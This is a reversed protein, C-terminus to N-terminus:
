GKRRNAYEHELDERSIPSGHGPLYTQCGTGLLKEWSSLLEDIDDAFPPFIKAAAINILSDGVIAVESDIIVASQGACHGPTHMVYGTLGYRHLDFTEDFVHDAQCPEYKFVSNIKKGIDALGKTFTFTGGPIPTDGAVLFGSEAAQVVVEAGYERALWAANGAHDFHTHTLIVAEPMIGKRSLAHGIRNRDFSIGTDVIINRGSKSVVFINCRAPTLRYVETGKDTQIKEM